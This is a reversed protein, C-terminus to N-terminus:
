PARTRSTAHLLPRATSPAPTHGSPSPPACGHRNFKTATRHHHHRLQSGKLGRRGWAGDQTSTQCTHSESIGVGDVSMMERCGRETRAQLKRASVCGYMHPTIPMAMAMEKETTPAAHYALEYWADRRVTNRLSVNGARMNEGDRTATNCRACCMPTPATNRQNEDRMSVQMVRDRAVCVDRRVAVNCQTEGDVGWAHESQM